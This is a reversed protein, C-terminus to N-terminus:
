ITSDPEIMTTVRVVALDVWATALQTMTSDENLAQLEKLKKRGFCDNDASGDLM